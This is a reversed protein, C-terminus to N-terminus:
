KIKKLFNINTTRIKSFYSSESLAFAKLVFLDIILWLLFFAIFLKVFSLLIQLIIFSVDLFYFIILWFSIRLSSLLSYQNLDSHTNNNWNTQFNDFFIFLNLDNVSDTYHFSFDVLEVQIDYFIYRVWCFFIRLVCLFNNIVDFIVVRTTLDGGSINSIMYFYQVDINLILFFFLLFVFVLMFYSFVDTVDEDASCMFIDFILFGLCFSFFIGIETVSLNSMQCFTIIDDYFIRISSKFSKTISLTLNLLFILTLLEVCILLIDFSYILEFFWRTQVAISALNSGSLVSTVYYNKVLLFFDYHLTSLMIDDFFFFNLYSFNFFSHYNLFLTMVDYSAAASFLNSFNFQTLSINYWLDTQITVGSFLRGAALLLINDVLTDLYTATVVSFNFYSFYSIFFDLSVISVSTNDTILHSCEWEFFSSIQSYASTLLVNEFLVNSM